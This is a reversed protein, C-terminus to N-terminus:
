SNVERTFESITAIAANQLSSCIRQGQETIDLPKIGLAAAQPDRAEKFAGWSWEGSNM